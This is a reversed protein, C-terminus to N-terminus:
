FSVFFIIPLGIGGIGGAAINMTPARQMGKRLPLSFGVNMNSSGERVKM